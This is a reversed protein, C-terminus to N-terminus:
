KCTSSFKTYNSDFNPISDNIYNSCLLSWAERIYCNNYAGTPDLDIKRAIKPYEKNVYGRFNNGQSNNVFPTAPFSCSSTSNSSSSKTESSSDEMLKELDDEDKPKRFLFYAGVGAGALIIGGIIWWKKKM